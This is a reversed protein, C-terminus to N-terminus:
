MDMADTKEEGAAGALLARAAEDAELVLEQPVLAHRWNSEECLWGMELEFPKDKSTNRITYISCRLCILYTNFIM